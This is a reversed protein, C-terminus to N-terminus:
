KKKLRKRQRKKVRKEAFDASYINCPLSNRQIERTITSRHLGLQKAIISASLNGIILIEIRKRDKLSLNTFQKM